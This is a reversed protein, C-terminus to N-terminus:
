QARVILLVAGGSGVLAVVGIFIAAGWGSVLAGFIVAAAVFVGATTALLARRRGQWVADKHADGSAPFAFYGAKWSILLSAGTGMVALIHLVTGAGGSVLSTAALVAVGVSAACLLPFRWAPRARFWAFISV